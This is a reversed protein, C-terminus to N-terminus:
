AVEGEPSSLLRSSTQPLPTGSVIRVLSSQSRDEAAAATGALREALEPEVRATIVRPEEKTNVIFRLYWLTRDCQMVFIL